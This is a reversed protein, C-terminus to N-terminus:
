FQPLVAILSFIYMYQTAIKQINFQLLIRLIQIYQITNYATINHYASRIIRSLLFLLIDIGLEEGRPMRLGTGRIFVKAVDSSPVGSSPVDSSPVGSSPVRSM